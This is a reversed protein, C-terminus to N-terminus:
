RKHPIAATQSSSCSQETQQRLVQQTAAQAATCRLSTHRPVVIHDPWATARHTSPETKSSHCRKSDVPYCSSRSMLHLQNLLVKQYISTFQPNFPLLRKLLASALHCPLKHLPGLTWKLSSPGIMIHLRQTLYVMGRCHSHCPSFALCSVKLSHLFGM